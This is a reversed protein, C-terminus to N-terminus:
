GLVAAGADAAPTRPVATQADDDLV